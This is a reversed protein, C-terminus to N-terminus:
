RVTPKDSSWKKKESFVAAASLQSVSFLFQRYYIETLGDSRIVAKVNCMIM